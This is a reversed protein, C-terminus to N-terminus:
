ASMEEPEFEGGDGAEIARRAAWAATTRCNARYELLRSDRRRAYDIVGRTEVQDARLARVMPDRGVEGAALKVARALMWRPSIVPRRSLAAIGQCLAEGDPGQVLALATQLEELNFSHGNRREELRQEAKPLMRGTATIVGAELAWALDEITQQVISALLALLRLEESDSCAERAEGHSPLVLEREILRKM